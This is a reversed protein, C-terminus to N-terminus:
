EHQEPIEIVVSPRDYVQNEGVEVWEVPLGDDRSRIIEIEFDGNPQPRVYVLDGHQLGSIPIRRTGM